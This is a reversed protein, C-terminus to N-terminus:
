PRQCTAKRWGTTIGCTCNKSWNSYNVHGDNHGTSCVVSIRWNWDMSWTCSTWATCTWRPHLRHSSRQSGVTAARQLMTATTAHGNHAVVSAPHSLTCLFAFIGCNCHESWTKAVPATRRNHADSHERLSSTPRSLQIRPLSKPARYVPVPSPATDM